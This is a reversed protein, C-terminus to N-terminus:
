AVGGSSRRVRKVEARSALRESRRAFDARRAERLRTYAAGGPAYADQRLRDLVALMLVQRRARFIEGVKTETREEVERCTDCTTITADEHGNCAQCVCRSCALEDECEVCRTWVVVCAGCRPGCHESVACARVCEGCTPQRCTECVIACLACGRACIACGGVSACAACLCEECEACLRTADEADCAVCASM